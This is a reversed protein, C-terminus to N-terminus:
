RQPLMSKWEEIVLFLNSSIQESRNVAVRSGTSFARLSEFISLFEISSITRIPPTVLIGLTWCSRSFKKLPFFSFRDMLGSSATANPAAMCAAIM